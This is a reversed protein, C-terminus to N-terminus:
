SGVPPAGPTMTTEPQVMVTVATHLKTVDLVDVGAEATLSQVLSNASYIQGTGLVSAHRSGQGVILDILPAVTMARVTGKRSTGDPMKIEVEGNTRLREYAGVGAEFFVVDSGFPLANLTSPATLTNTPKATAM